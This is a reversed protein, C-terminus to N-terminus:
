EDLFATSTQPCIGEREASGNSVLTLRLERPSKLCGRGDHCGLRFGFRVQDSCQGFVEREFDQGGVFELVKELVKRVGVERAQLLSRDIKGLMLLSWSGGKLLKDGPDLFRGPCSSICELRLFAVPRSPEPVRGPVM